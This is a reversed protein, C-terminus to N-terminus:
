LKSSCVTPALQWHLVRKRTPTDFSDGEPLGGIWETPTVLGGIWETPTVLGGIWQPPLFACPREAMGTGSSDAASRRFQDIACVYSDSSFPIDKNKNCFPLMTTLPPAYIAEPLSFLTPSKSWCLSTKSPPSSM